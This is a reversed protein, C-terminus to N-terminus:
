VLDVRVRGAQWMVLLQDEIAGSRVLRRAGPHRKLELASAERPDVRQRAPEGPPHRPAERHFSPLDWRDWRQASRPDGSSRLHRRTVPRKQVSDTHSFSDANCANTWATGCPSIMRARTGCMPRVRKTRHVTRPASRGTRHASAKRRHPELLLLAPSGTPLPEAWAFLY